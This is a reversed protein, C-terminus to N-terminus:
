QTQTEVEPSTLTFTGIFVANNTGVTGTGTLSASCTTPYRRIDVLVKGATLSRDTFKNRGKTKFSLNTTTLDCEMVSYATGQTKGNGIGRLTDVEPSGLLSVFLNTDVVTDGASTRLIANLAENTTGISIFRLLAKASILQNSSQGQNQGLAAAIDKTAFKTVTVSPLGSENTTQIYATLNWGMTLVLNTSANQASANQALASAIGCVLAFLACPKSFNLRNV